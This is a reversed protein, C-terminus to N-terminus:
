TQNVAEHETRRQRKKCERAYKLQEAAKEKRLCGCSKIQGSKLNRGIVITEQGCGGLDPACLCRWLPESKLGYKRPRYSGAREIVRLRGFERGTLDIFRGM